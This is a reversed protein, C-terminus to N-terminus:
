ISIIFEDAKLTDHGTYLEDSSNSPVEQQMILILSDMFKFKEM